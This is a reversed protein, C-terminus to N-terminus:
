GLSVGWGKGVTIIVSCVWPCPRPPPYNMCTPVGRGCSGVAPRLIAQELHYLQIDFAVDLQEKSGAPTILPPHLQGGPSMIVPYVPSIRGTATPVPAGVDGKPSPPPPHSRCPSAQAPSTPAPPPDAPDAPDPEAPAAAPPSAPEPPSAAQVLQWVEEDRQQVGARLRENHRGFREALLM